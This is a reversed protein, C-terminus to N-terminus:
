DKYIVHGQADYISAIEGINRGNRILVYREFYRERIIQEFLPKKQIEGFSEGHVTVLMKAGCHMAFKIAEVDETTGLEDVAVVEPAMSRILM